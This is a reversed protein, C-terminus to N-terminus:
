GRREKILGTIDKDDIPPLGKGRKISELVRDCGDACLDETNLIKVGLPLVCIQDTSTKQLDAQMKKREEESCYMRMQM